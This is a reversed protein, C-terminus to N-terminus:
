SCSVVEVEDSFNVIFNCSNSITILAACVSFIIKIKQSHLFWLLTFVVVMMQSM